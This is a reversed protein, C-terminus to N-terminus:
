ANGFGGGGLDFEWKAAAPSTGAASDFEDSWTLQWGSPDGAAAQAGTVNIAMPALCLLATAAALGRARRNTSRANTRTM